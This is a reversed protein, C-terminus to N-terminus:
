LRARQYNTMFWDITLRLGEELSVKPEFGLITRMRTVDFGKRLQGDPKTTDWVIDGRYDFIRVIFDVLERITTERGSSINIIESSDYTEAALVIAQAADGVYIFDRIPCGTGWVTVTPKGDRKAEYVKRILAPIVHADNLNFNDHPGYINGPVLV